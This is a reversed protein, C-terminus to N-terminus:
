YFYHIYEFKNLSVSKKINFFLFQMKLKHLKIEQDSSLIWVVKAIEMWNIGKFTVGSQLAMEFIAEQALTDTISPYLACVDLSLIVTKLNDSPHNLINTNCDSIGRKMIEGNICESPAGLADAIYGLVMSILNQARSIPGNKAGCVPRTKSYCRDDSIYM